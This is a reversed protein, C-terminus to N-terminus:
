KYFFLTRIILLRIIIKEMIFCGPNALLQNMEIMRLDHGRHLNLYMYAFYGAELEVKGNRLSLAALDFQPM